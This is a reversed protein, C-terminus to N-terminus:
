DTTDTDIDINEIIEKVNTLLDGVTFTGGNTDPMQSAKAILLEVIQPDISGVISKVATLIDAHQAAYKESDVFEYTANALTTNVTANNNVETIDALGDELITDSEKDDLTDDYVVDGYTIETGEKENDYREIVAAVNELIKGLTIPTFPSVFSLAENILQDKTAEDDIELGLGDVMAVIGARLAEKQKEQAAPNNRDLTDDAEHVVGKSDELAGEAKAKRNDDYLFNTTTSKAFQPTLTDSLDKDRETDKEELITAINSTLESLTKPIPNKAMAQAILQKKIADDFVFGESKVMEDIVNMMANNQTISLKGGTIAPIKNTLITAIKRQDAPSYEFDIDSFAQGKNAGKTAVFSKDAFYQGLSNETSLTSNNGTDGAITDTNNDYREIVKAANKLMDGVTLKTGKTPDGLTSAEKLINNLLDPSATTVGAASLMDKIGTTLTTNQAATKTYEPSYTGANANVMENAKKDFNYAVKSFPKASVDQSIGQKSLLGNFGKQLKKDITTDNAADGNNKDTTNDDYRELVKSVNHLLKGITTPAPNMSKAEAILANKVEPSLTFGDTMKNISEKIANTQLPAKDNLPTNVNLGYTSLLTNIETKDSQDYKFNTKSFAQGFKNKLNVDSLKNNLFQDRDRVVPTDKDVNGYNKDGRTNTENNDYRELVTAINALLEANTISKHNNNKLATTTPDGIQLGEKILKEMMADDIAYGDAMKKVSDKINQKDTSAVYKKDINAQSGFETKAEGKDADTYKFDHDAFAQSTTNGETASTSTAKFDKNTFYNSLSKDAESGLSEDHVVDGFTEDKTNDDYRELVSLLNNIVDELNKPNGFSLAENALLKKLEPTLKKDGTFGEEELIIDIIGGEKELSNKVDATDSKWNIDGKLTLDIDDSVLYAKVDDKDTKSYEIDLDKFAKADDNKAASLDTRLTKDLSVTSSM